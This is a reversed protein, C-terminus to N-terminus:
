KKKLVDLDIIKTCDILETEEENSAIFLIRGQTHETLLKRYLAKGAEDLNSCPEDLLLVEASGLFALGLKLRQKMGSSFQKISSDEKSELLTTELLEKLGIGKKFPLFSSQFQYLESISLQEPLDMYPSVISLKGALHNLDLDSGDKAQYQLKGESPLSIGAIVQLLSSKGSGNIGKVGIRQDLSFTENLHRFLWHKGFRKGIDSLLINM